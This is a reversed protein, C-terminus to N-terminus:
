VRVTSAPALITWGDAKLTRVMSDSVTKTEALDCFLRSLDCAPYYTTKGYVSRACVFIQKEM